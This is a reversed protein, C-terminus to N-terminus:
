AAGAGRRRAGKRPHAIEVLGLQIDEVTLDRGADDYFRRLAQAAQAAKDRPGSVAFREGRRAITM